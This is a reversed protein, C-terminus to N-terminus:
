GNRHLHINNKRKKSLYYTFNSSVQNVDNDKEAEELMINQERMKVICGRYGDFADLNETMSWNKIQQVLFLCPVRLMYEQMVDEVNGDKHRITAPRKRNLYVAVWQALQFKNTGVHYGFRNPNKEYITSGQTLIPEMMLLNTKGKNVYYSRTDAGKNSEYALGGIPNGFMQLLLEQQRLYANTGGKSTPTRSIFSAVIDGGNFGYALYKPNMIVYTTSLSAKKPDKPDDESLMDYGFIYMDDPTIGNIKQPMEYIVICGEPEDKKKTTVPWHYYPKDIDAITYTVGNIATDDDIESEFLVVPTGITKYLENELLQNEREQALKVPM